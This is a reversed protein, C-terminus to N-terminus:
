AQDDNIRAVPEVLDLIMSKALSTKLTNMEQDQYDTRYPNTALATYDRLEEGHVNLTLRDLGFFERYMETGTMSRPDAQTTTDEDESETNQVDTHQSEKCVVNGTEKDIELQIVEDPALTALVVPSHTTAVFQLKPFTERLAPILRAQWSPHLYLDIEDILVLGEFEKPSL